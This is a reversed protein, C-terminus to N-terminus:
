VRNVVIGNKVYKYSKVSYTNSTFVNLSQNKHGLINYIHITNLDRWNSSVEKLSVGM